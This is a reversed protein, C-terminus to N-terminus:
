SRNFICVVVESYRSSLPVLYEDRWAREPRPWWLLYPTSPASPEDSEHSCCIM